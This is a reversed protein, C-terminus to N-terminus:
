FFGGIKGFLGMQKGEENPSKGLVGGKLFFALNSTIVSAKSCDLISDDDTGTFHIVESDSVYVGHHAYLGGIRMVRIHDGMQPMKRVWIEQTFDVDIMPPLTIINKM